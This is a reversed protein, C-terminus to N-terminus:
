HINSDEYGRIISDCEVRSRVDTNNYMLEFLNNIQIPKMGIDVRYKTYHFHFLKRPSRDAEDDHELSSLHDSDIGQDSSTPREDYEALAPLPAPPPLAALRDRAVQLEREARLREHHARACELAAQSAAVAAEDAARRLTRETECLTAELESKEGRLKDVIDNMKAVKHEFDKVRSELNAVKETLVRRSEKLEESDAREADLALALDNREATLEDIRVKAAALEGGLNQEIGELLGIRRNLRDIEESFSAENKADFCRSGHSVRSRRRRQRNHDTVSEKDNIVLDQLGIRARSVERDPESWSESDSLVDARPIRAHKRPSRKGAGCSMHHGLMMTLDDLRMSQSTDMNSEDMTFEEPALSDDLKLGVPLALSQELISEALKRKDEGIM